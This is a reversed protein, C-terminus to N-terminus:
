IYMYTNSLSGGCLMAFYYLTSAGYRDVFNIYWYYNHLAIHHNYNQTNHVGISSLVRCFNTTFAYTNMFSMHCHSM